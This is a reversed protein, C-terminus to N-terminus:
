VKRFVLFCVCKGVMKEAYRAAFMAKQSNQRVLEMLMDLEPDKPSALDAQYKMPLNKEEYAGYSTRHVTPRHVKHRPHSSTNPQGSTMVSTHSQPQDWHLHWQPHSADTSTSHNMDPLVSGRHSSFDSFNHSYSTHLSM